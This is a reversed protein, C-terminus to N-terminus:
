YVEFGGSRRCFAAFKTLWEYTASYIENLDEETPRMDSTWLKDPSDTVSLDARMRWGPGMSALKREVTEAIRSALGADALGGCGQASMREYQGEDILKETFLLLLTPRWNWGNIQVDDGHKPVLIFSM